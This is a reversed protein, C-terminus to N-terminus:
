SRQRGCHRRCFSHSGHGDTGDAGIQGRHLLEDRVPRLDVDREASGGGGVEFEAAAIGDGVEGGVSGVDLGEHIGDFGGDGGLAGRGAVAVGEAGADAEAERLEAGGDLVLQAAGAVDVGKGSEGGFGGALADGDVGVGGHKLHPYLDVGIGGDGPERRGEDEDAAVCEGIEGGVQGGEAGDVGGEVGVRFGSGDGALFADDGGVGDLFSEGFVAVGDKCLEAGTRRENEGQGGDRGRGARRGVRHLVKVALPVGSEVGGDDGKGGRGGQMDDPVFEAGAEARGVPDGVFKHDGRESGVGQGELEEGGLPQGSGARLGREADIGDGCVAAFFARGVEDDRAGSGGAHLSLFAGCSGKPAFGPAYPVRM